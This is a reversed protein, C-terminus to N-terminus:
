GAELAAVKTKLTEIETIAEQLAATLLPVLKGQDIGQMVANGDDDVADKTGTVAEPVVSQAEHAIFGDVTTDPDVIFNFRKPELQKLRTTASTLDVVNEKLRYDSSTNYATSSSSLSIDGVAVAQRFFQMTSGDGDRGVKVAVGGDRHFHSGGSGNLMVQPVHNGIPNTNTGGVLFNGNTDFRARATGDVAQANGTQFIVESGAGVYLKNANVGIYGCDSGGSQFQLGGYAADNITMKSGAVPSATGVGVRDNTQDVYLTDDGEVYRADAEAKTYGDVQTVAAKSGIYGAM